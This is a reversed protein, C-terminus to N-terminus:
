TYALWLPGGRNTKPLEEFGRNKVGTSEFQSM